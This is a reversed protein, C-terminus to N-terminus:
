RTAKASEADIRESELLGLLRTLGSSGVFPRHPAHLYTTM